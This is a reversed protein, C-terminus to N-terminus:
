TITNLYSAPFLSMSSLVGFDGWKSMNFTWIRRNTWFNAGQGLITKLVLNRPVFVYFYTTKRLLTSIPLQSWAWQVWCGLIGGNQCIVRWFRGIPKFTLEKALSLRQFVIGHYFDYFYPTKRLLTSIPLQSLAWQVWCGLNGKSMNCTLIRRNSWFSAGQGLFTKPVCNRPLFRLFVDNKTISNLYSAPVMSM